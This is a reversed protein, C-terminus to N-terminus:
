DETVNKAPFQVYRLTDTKPSSEVLSDMAPACTGVYRSYPSAVIHDRCRPGDGFREHRLGVPAVCIRDTELLTHM